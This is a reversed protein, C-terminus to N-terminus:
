WHWKLHSWGTHQNSPNMKSSEVPMDWQLTNLVSVWTLLTFYCCSQRAPPLRKELYVEGTKRISKSLSRGWVSFGPSHSCHACQGAYGVHWAQSAVLQSDTCGCSVARGVTDRMGKFNSDVQHVTPLLFSCMLKDDNSLPSRRWRRRDGTTM